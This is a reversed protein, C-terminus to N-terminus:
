ITLHPSESHIIRFITHPSTFAIEKELILNNTQTRTYFSIIWIHLGYSGDILTQASTIYYLICSRYIVIM